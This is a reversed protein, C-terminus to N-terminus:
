HLNLKQVRCIASRAWMSRTRAAAISPTSPASSRPCSGPGASSASSRATWDCRTSRAASTSTTRRIPIPATSSVPEARADHLAGAANGVNTIQTKFNGDGDFVQIRKNGGDAVYVNGQADVAIRRVTGFKGPETGKPAGPNSSCATRTSSPSARMASVTPWTSTAPPTGPSTPRGTSSTPRSAPARLAARSSGAPAGAGARAPITSRKRRAASCCARRPGAPDFKIVMNSMQDVVWINDQPDIRVQQPSCSATSTGPRDRPRVQRQPRVRVAALRRARVPARHRALGDSSRHAHLRFHRGQSNTAVGAVEGLYIDDPLTLPNPASM